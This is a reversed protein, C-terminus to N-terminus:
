DFRYGSVITSLVEGNFVRKGPNESAGAAVMLPLLHEERPHSVRAAPAAEWDALREARTAADAEAAATLWDDFRTAPELAAPNRYARLNHFSMGSGIIVVGEDRLPGLARGVELHLKPDLSGHLSMQVVPVDADPWAVKMPIFVGHDFGREPDVGSVFGADALLRAARNALEPSGPADFKLEYTHPPFNYYDYILPPQAGSTFGFGNAEWHGSVILLAKPPEPLTAPLERLFTEMDTWVGAPDDMFFCPGGGHPIYFTPQRM